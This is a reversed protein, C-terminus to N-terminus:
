CSRGFTPPDSEGRQSGGDGCRARATTHEGLVAGRRYDHIAAAFIETASASERDVLVALPGEYLAGPVPDPFQELEGTSHKVQVIPGLDIFLGALRAAELLAGGGNGRLDLVIGDPPADHEENLLKAVDAATGAYDGGRGAGAYISARDRCWLRLRERQQLDQAARNWSVIRDRVLSIVSPLSRANAGKPCCRLRVTSGVPRIIPVVVPNLTWGVVHRGAGGTDGPDVALM